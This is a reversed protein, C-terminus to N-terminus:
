WDFVSTTAALVESRSRSVTCTVVVGESFLGVAFTSLPSLYGLRLDLVSSVSETFSFPLLQVAVFHHDISRGYGDWLATTSEASRGNKEKSASVIIRFIGKHILIDKSEQLQQTTLPAMINSRDEAKQPHNPQARIWICWIRFQIWNYINIAIRLFMIEDIRFNLRFFIVHLIDASIWHPPQPSRFDQFVFRM